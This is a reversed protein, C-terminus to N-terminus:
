NVQVELHQQTPYYYDLSNAESDDRQVAFRPARARNSLANIFMHLLTVPRQRDHGPPPAHIYKSLM